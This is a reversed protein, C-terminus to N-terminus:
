VLNKAWRKIKEFLTSPQNQSSHLAHSVSSEETQKFMAAYSQNILLPIGKSQTYLLELQKPTIEDLVLPAISSTSKLHQKLYNLYHAKVIPRIVSSHVLGHIIKEM